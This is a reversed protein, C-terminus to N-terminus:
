GKPLNKNTLQFMQLFSSGKKDSPSDLVVETANLTTGSTLSLTFSLVKREKEALKPDSVMQQSLAMLGEMKAFIVKRAIASQGTTSCVTSANAHM